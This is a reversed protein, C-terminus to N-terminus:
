CHRLTNEPPNEMFNDLRDVQLGQRSKRLSLQWKKLHMRTCEASAIDLTEDLTLFNIFLTMRELKTMIGEIGVGEDRLKSTYDNLLKGDVIMRENVKTNDAYYLYKSVNEAIQKAEM